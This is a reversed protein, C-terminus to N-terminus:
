VGYAYWYTTKGSSTFPYSTSSSTLTFGDEDLTFSLNTTRNSSGVIFFKTLESVHAIILSNGFAVHLVVATPKFGLGTVTVKTANATSHALTGSSSKASGGGTEPLAEVAELIAQLATTNNTLQSM